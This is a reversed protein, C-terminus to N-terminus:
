NDRKDGEVSLDHSILFARLDALTQDRAPSEIPSVSLLFKTGAPFQTLKEKLADMSQFEYQAVQAHFPYPEPNHRVSITLIPAEWMKLYQDLDRQIRRVKTLSLRQLRTKDAFWSKGTALAHMLNEGLGLQYQKEDDNDAVTIDLQSERGEWRACWSAYRQWLASEAAPSGYKALMTAATMAVEPDPDNLSKIGLEELVPDFHIESIGQFLGHNCASFDEGRAAIAQEIRPRAVAPNVRLLYALLPDQIVCGLKGIKPDLTETVQPLIAASGYRAILSALHSSGDLDHSAALHEALAFDVEPLTEDPLMGLVRADYRPRPRSIEVIIAPRAGAPDLQYWLRLARASRELSSYANSGRMEPFDQYAQAMQKLIPLMAPSGIKDWYGVLLNAQENVPLQDFVAALQSILKDTIQRPLAEGSWAEHVATNLSISLARGRKAPLAAILAEVVRQQDERWSAPTGNPASIVIRLVYLFTSTIPFEPDALAQQLSNRVVAREPSSILGLMCVYDLGGADEGRMRRVLERAADATGLFRLSELAKHRLATYVEMQEPRAPAPKNLAAVADIFAQKQWAQDAPVINLTIENSRAAVPSGGFAHSPDRIGVRDSLVNLRYMGPQTFRVWENLNLNITWPELALFGYNTLGGMSGTYTPLPDIVGEAPSVIFHEYNMRGSRDYQAMNIQYHNKVASSYSLQLPITEGIHFDRQKTALSVKLVIKPDVETASQACAPVVTIGVLLLLTLLRMTRGNRVVWRVESKDIELGVEWARDVFLVL